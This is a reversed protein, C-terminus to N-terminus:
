ENPTVRAPKRRRRGAQELKRGVAICALAALLWPLLDLGTRAFGSGLVGSGSGTSGDSRAFGRNAAGSGQGLSEGLVGSGVAAVPDVCVMACPPASACLQWRQTPNAPSTTTTGFTGASDANGSAIQNGDRFIFVANGPTIGSAIVQVTTNPPLVGSPQLRLTPTAPCGEPLAAATTTTTGPAVTTSSGGPLTTTSTSTAPAVTGGTYPDTVQADAHHVQVVLAMIAVSLICLLRALGVSGGRGKGNM